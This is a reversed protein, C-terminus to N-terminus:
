PVRATRPIRDQGPVRICAGSPDYTFGYYGCVVTDDVRRGESLPFRRHVCNDSLGVVEGTSTRFFVIAEGLVTRALLGDGLEDSYAAVYWQNRAFERSM